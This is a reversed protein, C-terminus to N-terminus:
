RDALALILEEEGICVMGCLVFVCCYGGMQRRAKRGVGAEEETVQIWRECGERVTSESIALFVWLAAFKKQESPVNPANVTDGTSPEGVDTADQWRCHGGVM